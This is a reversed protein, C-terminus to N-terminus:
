PIVELTKTAKIEWSRGKEQYAMLTYTGPQLGRTYSTVFSGNGDVTLTEFPLLGSVGVVVMKNANFGSGSITFDSDAVVPDPSVTLTAKQKGGGHGGGNGNGAHDPKGALAPSTAIATFILAALAVAAVVGLSKSRSMKLVGRGAGCQKSLSTQRM